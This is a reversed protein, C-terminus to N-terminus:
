AAPLSISTVQYQMETCVPVGIITVGDDAEPEELILDPETFTASENAFV